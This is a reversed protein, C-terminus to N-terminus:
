ENQRLLVWEGNTSMYENYSYGEEYFEKLDKSLVIGNEIIFRSM